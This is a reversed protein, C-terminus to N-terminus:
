KEVTTIIAELEGIDMSSLGRRTAPEYILTRVTEETAKVPHRCGPLLCIVRSTRDLDITGTPMEALDRLNLTELTNVWILRLFRRDDPGANSPKRVTKETFLDEFDTRPIIKAIKRTDHGNSCTIYLVRTPEIM